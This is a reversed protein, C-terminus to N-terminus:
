LNILEIRDSYVIGAFNSNFVVQKIEQLSIYKKILWGNTNIFHVETGLNFAIINDYTSMSKPIGNITYTSEKRNDINIILAESESSFLMSAKETIKVLNEKLNIDAFLVKNDKLESIYENNQEYIIHFSDDYMCVLRNKSQYKINVIMSNPEAKYTYIISNSPETQAKEISIIKINSQIVTGTTDVEAIALYKNDNSIQVAVTDTTSLYTKFLEKGEPNFTVIVTKYSTGSLIVSVYGNKNVHVNSINGELDKKWIQQTGNILYISQGNDEFICLFRNNSEFIPNTIIIDLEHDIKANNNYLILKNKNLVVVYKDYAYINKIYQPDIEVIASSKESIEKRLIKIDFFVRFKENSAYFVFLIVIIIFLAIFTFTLITKNKNLKKKKEKNKNLFINNM